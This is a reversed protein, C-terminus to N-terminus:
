KNDKIFSPLGGIFPECRQLHLKWFPDTKFYQKVTFSRPTGITPHIPYIVVWEGEKPQWLEWENVIDKDEIEEYWRITDIGVRSIDLGDKSRVWDGVKFEM